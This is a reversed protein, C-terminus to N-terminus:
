QQITNQYNQTPAVPQQVPQEQMVPTASIVPEERTMSVAPAEMVPIPTPEMAPMQPMSPMEPATNVQPAEMMMGNGNSAVTPDQLGQPAPVENAVSSAQAVPEIEAMTDININENLTGTPAEIILKDEEAEVPAQVTSGNNVPASTFITDNSMPSAVNNPTASYADLSPAPAVQGVPQPTNEVPTQNVFTQQEPVFNQANPNVGFSGQAMPDMSAAEQKKKKKGDVIFGILAFLLVVAGVMFWIYNDALFNLVTDMNM